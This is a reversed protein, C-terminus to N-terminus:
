IEFYLTKIEYPRFTLTAGSLKEREEELMNCTCVSKYRFGAKLVTEGGEGYRDYLRAVVGKGDQSPKITEILIDDNDCELLAPIDPTFDCSILPANFRYGDAVVESQQWTGRHPRLMYGIVHRGMDCDPDPNKPSRLLNLSILGEKVRHGFKCDNILAVGREGDDSDVNVFKHACIEFQARQVPTVDATDRDVDGFQIDCNVKSGFVSPKFEVRLMKFDEHWDVETDFRIAEEGAIVSIKQVLSSKEGIAFKQEMVAAPGDVYSNRAVLRVTHRRLKRYDDRIDWANYYLKPDTFLEFKNLYEGCYDFNEDKAVASKISGDAAFVVKFKDSEISDATCKPEPYGQAEVFPACSYAGADVKYWKGEDLVFQKRAVPAANVFCPEGGKKMATLLKARIDRLKGRLVDFRANAEDYIRGVSSGPLIDHFQYLLVERWIEDMEKQPYAIGKLRAIAGLWEVEHLEREAQRNNLKLKAQSTYTGQHKELYLEGRWTPYQQIKTSIYEFFSQASGNKVRPLGQEDRMRALMELPAEGPGGGGDGIGYVLLGEHIGKDNGRESKVVAFPTASSCYTGQPAMHALVESGDIGQWVFTKHPFKNHTNWTLKITMFYDKCCGKFIQPLSAPYGFVDPLWVMRSTKGFERRFFEEGYVFQRIISEGSPLNCDNETWMAGQLEIRGDAVAKKFGDFIDPYGTKVWDMLQAQSAGFIYDPYKDLNVLATAYTRAGKRKTERIPWLWGLDIHAHGIATYEGADASTPSAAAAGLLKRAMAIDGKRYQARAEYLVNDIEDERERTLAQNKGATLLLSFLQLFDYYLGATEDDRIALVARKFRAKCGAKNRKGNFGCDVLLRVKEGGEACDFLDVQQKGPAPTVWDIADKKQTIGVVPKGDIYVLGEGQVDILAVVKKGKAAAPVEGEFDFWACDFDSGWATGPEIPDFQKEGIQSFPVPERSLAAKASLPAVVTYVKSRLKLLFHLYKPYLAAREIM